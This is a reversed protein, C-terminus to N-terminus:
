LAYDESHTQQSDDLFHFLFLFFHPQEHHLYVAAPGNPAQQQDCTVCAIFVNLPKSLAPLVVITLRRFLSSMVVILGVKPKLMLVICNLPHSRHDEYFVHLPHCHHFLKVLLHDTQAYCCTYASCRPHQPAFFGENMSSSSSHAFLHM